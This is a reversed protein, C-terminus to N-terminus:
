PFSQNANKHDVQTFTFCLKKCLKDQCIKHKSIAKTNNKTPFDKMRWEEM